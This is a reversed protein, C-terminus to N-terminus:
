MIYSKKEIKSAQVDIVWMVLFPIKLFFDM